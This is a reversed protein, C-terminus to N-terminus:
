FEVGKGIIGIRGNINRVTGEVTIKAGGKPPITFGSPNIDVFITGTNDELFFWCGTPCQRTIKGELRVTRELYENSNVLIDRVSTVEKTSIDTGYKEINRSSISGCGSFFLLVFIIIIPITFSQNNKIKIM